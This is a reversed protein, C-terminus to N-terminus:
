TSQIGSVARDSLETIKRKISVCENDADLQGRREKWIDERLKDILDHNNKLKKDFDDVQNETETIQRKFNDGDENDKNYRDSLDNYKDSLHQRTHEISECDREVDELRYRKDAVKHKWYDLEDRLRNIEAERDRIRDETDYYERRLRHYDDRQYDEDEFSDRRESKLIHVNPM